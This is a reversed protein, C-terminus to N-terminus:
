QKRLFFIAWSLGVFCAFLQVIHAADPGFFICIPLASILLTIVVCFANWGDNLWNIIKTKM